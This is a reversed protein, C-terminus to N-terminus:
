HNMPNEPAKQWQKWLLEKAQSLKLSPNQERIITLNIAEYAVFAARMRKEPNRDVESNIQDLAEEVSRADVITSDEEGDEMQKLNQNRIVQNINEELPIELEEKKKREEERRIAALEREREREIEFKTLKLQGKDGYQKTLENREKEELEKKENRRQIAKLRKEEEAKRRAEKALIHKDNDEWKADEIAKEKQEREAKKVAAKRENAEVAKSNQGKFKKPM